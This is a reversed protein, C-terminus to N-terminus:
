LWLKVTKVEYPTLDFQLENGNFSVEAEAEEEETLNCLMAKRIPHGCLLKIGNSRYQKYEYIRLIIADDNEAKKVTEIMTHECDLQVEATFGGGDRPGVLFRLSLKKERWGEPITVTARFWATKDYGGWFDGLTYDQWLSDDFGPQTYSEERNQIADFDGEIYKSTM